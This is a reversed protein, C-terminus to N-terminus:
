ADQDPVLPRNEDDVELLLAQHDAAEDEAVLVWASASLADGPVVHRAAPGTVAVGGEVACLCVDPWSAGSEACAVEVREGEVIGALAMVDPPLGLAPAGETDSDTVVLGFVRVRLLTRV